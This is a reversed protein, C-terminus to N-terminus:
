TLVGDAQASGIRSADKLGTWLVHAPQVVLVAKPRM